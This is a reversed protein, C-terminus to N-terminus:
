FKCSEEIENPFRHSSRQNSSKTQFNLINIGNPSEGYRGCAYAFFDNCPNVDRNLLRISNAAALVCEDTDCVNKSTDIAETTTATTTTTTPIAMTTTAISPKSIIDPVLVPETMMAENEDISKFGSASEVMEITTSTTTITTPPTTTTSAMTTPVSTTSLITSTTGVTYVELEVKNEIPYVTEDSSSTYYEEYNMWELDVTTPVVTTGRIELDRTEELMKFLSREDMESIPQRQNNPRQDNQPGLHQYIVIGLLIAAFLYGTILVAYIIGRSINNARVANLYQRRNNNGNVAVDPTVSGIQLREEEAVKARTM